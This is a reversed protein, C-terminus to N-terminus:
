LSSGDREAMTVASPNKEANEQQKERGDFYEDV